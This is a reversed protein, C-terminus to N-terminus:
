THAFDACTQETQIPLDQFSGFMDSESNSHKKERCTLPPKGGSDRNIPLNLIPSGKGSIRKLGLLGSGHRWPLSGTSIKIYCKPRGCIQSCLRGLCSHGTVCLGRAGAELHGCIHFFTLIPHLAEVGVQLGVHLPPLVVLPLVEPLQEHPQSVLVDLIILLYLHAQWFGSAPVRSGGHGEM